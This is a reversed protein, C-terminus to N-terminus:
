AGQSSRHSRDHADQKEPTKGNTPLLLRKTSPIARAEKPQESMQLRSVLAPFAGHRTNNAGYRKQHIPRALRTSPSGPRPRTSTRGWERACYEESHTVLGVDFPTVVIDLLKERTNQLRSVRRADQRQQGLM